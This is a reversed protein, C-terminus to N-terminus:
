FYGKVGLLIYGPLSSVSTRDIGLSSATSYIHEFTNLNTVNNFLLSYEFNAKEKRYSFHGGLLFNRVTQYSTKQIFYEGLINGLWEKNFHTRLGIYLKINEQMTGVSFLSQIFKSKTYTIGTDVQVPFNNFHSTIKEAIEMNTIQLINELGQVFNTNRNQMFTVKSKLSWVNSLRHEDSLLFFWRDKFQGITQQMKSFVGYNYADDTFNAKSKSYMGLLLLHNGKFVDLRMFNFKWNDTKSMTTPSLAINQSMSFNKSYVNDTFLNKIEPFEYKSAYEVGFDMMVSTRPKYNLRYMTELYHVTEQNVSTFHSSLLVSTNFSGIKRDLLLENKYLHKDLILREQQLTYQESLLAETHKNEFRTNFRYDVIRSSGRIMFDMTYGESQISTNQLLSHNPTLFLSKNSNLRLTSSMNESSQAFSMKMKLGNVNKNWALYHSLNNNSVIEQNNFYYSNNSARDINQSFDDRTPNYGFRYYLYNNESFNLKFRLRTTGLFGKNDENKKELFNFSTPQHAFATRNTTSLKHLQVGNLISFATIHYKKNAKSYQLAGFQNTKRKINQDNNLFSPIDVRTITTAEDQEEQQNMEQFDSISIPNKAISNADVILALNGFTNFKFVNSHIWYANANGYYSEGSGTIKGKYKDKLKLNLATSNKGDITTYNKWMDVGELMDATINQTAMKHNKGFFENGEVLVQGVANGQFTVKGNENVDLGPLKKILDEATRETGDKVAKINYKLTDKANKIIKPRSKIVVEKIETHQEELIVQFHTKEKTDIELFQTKYYMSTIKLTYSGSEKLTFFCTGNDQTKQFDITKGKKQLQVNINGLRQGREDKAVVEIQQAFCFNIFLVFVVIAGKM